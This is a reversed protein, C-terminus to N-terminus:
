WRLSSIVTRDGRNADSGQPDDLYVTFM